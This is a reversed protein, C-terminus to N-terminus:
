FPLEGEPQEAAQTEAKAAPAGPATNRKLDLTIEYQQEIKSYNLKYAHLSVGGISVKKYDLFFGSSRLYNEMTSKDLWFTDGAARLEKIYLNHAEPLRFYIIRNGDEQAFKYHKDEILLGQMVLIEVTRWFKAVDNNQKTITFQALAKDILLMKFAHANVPFALHQSMTKYTAMLIAYNMHYRETVGKESLVEKFEKLCSRFIKIFNDAFHKRYQLVDHAVSSLANAELMKLEEFKRTQEEKRKKTAKFTLLMFRELLAAEITPMDQGSVIASSNVPTSETSADNTKKARTYSRGDYLQKLTAIIKKNIANKYEDLWVIGNRFQALTRLIGKPTSTESELSISNQPFGLLSMISEAFVGKGSGPPGYLFMMPFRKISPHGFIVDRFLSAVFWVQGFIANQGFVAHHLAAWSNFTVSSESYVFKSEPSSDDIDDVLTALQNASPIFYTDGSNVTVMGYEDAPLFTPRESLDLIGNGWAWFQNRPNWGLINLQVAHREDRQLYENIKALDEERGQWSFNSLRNVIKKFAGSTTMDDTNIALTRTQGYQNTLTIIRYAADVSQQVLYHVRMTFTSVCNWINRMGRVYYKNGDEYIGYNFAVSMDGEWNAPLGIDEPTIGRTSMGNAISKRNGEAHKKKSLEKVISKIYTEKIKPTQLFQLEDLERELADIASPDVDKKRRLKNLESEKRNILRGNESVKNNITQTVANIYSERRATNKICLMLQAVKEIASAEMDPNLASKWIQQSKWIVGLEQMGLLHDFIQKNINPTSNM